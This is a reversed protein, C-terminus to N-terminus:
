EGSLNYKGLVVNEYKDLLRESAYFNLERMKSLYIDLKDFDTCGEFRYESIFDEIKNEIFCKLNIIRAVNM